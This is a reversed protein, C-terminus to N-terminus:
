TKFVYVEMAEYNEIERDIKLCYKGMAKMKPGNRCIDGGPGLNSPNTNFNKVPM